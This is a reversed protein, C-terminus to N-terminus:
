EAAELIARSVRMRDARVLSVEGTDTMRGAGRDNGAAEEADDADV